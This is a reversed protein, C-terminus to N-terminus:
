TGEFAEMAFGAFKEDSQEFAKKVEAVGAPDSLKLLAAPTPARSLV